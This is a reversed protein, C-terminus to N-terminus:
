GSPAPEEASTEEGSGSDEVPAAEETPTEDDEGGCATLAFAMLLVFLIMFIKKKFV